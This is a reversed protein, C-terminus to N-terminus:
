SLDGDTARDAPDTEDNRIQRAQKDPGIMAPQQRHRSQHAGYKKNDGISQRTIQRRCFNGDTDDRCDDARRNKGIEQAAVGRTPGSSREARHQDNTEAKM